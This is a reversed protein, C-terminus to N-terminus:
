LPHRGGLFRRTYNKIMFPPQNLKIIKEYDATMRLFDFFYVFM